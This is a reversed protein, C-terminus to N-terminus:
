QAYTKISFDLWPIDPRQVTYGLTFQNTNVDNHWLPGANATSLNDFTYNQVLVSGSVQQGEAPRINMKFLGGLLGSGTDPM